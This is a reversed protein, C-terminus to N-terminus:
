FVIWRVATEFDPLSSGPVHAHQRQGVDQKGGGPAQVDEDRSEEPVGGVKGVEAVDMGAVVGAAMGAGGAGAMPVAAVPVPHRPGALAGGRRPRDAM